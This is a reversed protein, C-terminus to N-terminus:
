RKYYSIVKKIAEIVKDQDDNTMSYFLPISIIREYLKEANPCIGMEYGLKKYYPFSYVPIYHVNVGVGEAQLADFVERRGCKLMDTNLQIIYLHRVTDSEPIEKQVIIEPMESFAEDYRKVLEKRRKAFMGLKDLQTCLLAAQIDTMRYNYGLDIEQYYWGGESEKDMWDQVRTIGHTRFLVLRKYLEDDNTTIAGGEGATCTKVPHFSFETMDALSGVSKGNYCTGLSHAADEIFFLNNKDCIERIKEVEVAQGTFDVAVVAKTNKTIKREIDAPDINYTEPNIDAFVPKGGCYLACNASAAFTIPTTIVEDDKKIGAAYMTAHLAATGNSVLVAHKAGTIECLKEEAEEIKPGCTLYDSKLVDVVANIDEDDIYQHGYGIQKEFVPKGGFIALDSM